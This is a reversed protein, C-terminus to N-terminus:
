TEVTIVGVVLPPAHIQSLRALEVHNLNDPLSSIGAAEPNLRGIRGVEGVGHGDDLTVLLQRRQRPRIVERRCDRGAIDPEDANLASQGVAVAEKLEADILLRSGHDGAKHGHGRRIHATQATAHRYVTRCLVLITRRHRDPLDAILDAGSVGTDEVAIDIRRQLRSRSHNRHARGTHGGRRNLDDAIVAAIHGRGVLHSAMVVLGVDRRHAQRKVAVFTRALPHEM